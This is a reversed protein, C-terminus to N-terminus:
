ARRQVEARKVGRSTTQSTRLFARETHEIVHKISDKGTAQPITPCLSAVYIAFLPFSSVFDCVRELFFAHGIAISPSDISLPIMQSSANKVHREREIPKPFELKTTKFPHEGVTFSILQSGFRLLGPDRCPLGFSSSPVSPRATPTRGLAGRGAMRRRAVHTRGIRAALM